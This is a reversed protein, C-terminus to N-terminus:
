SSEIKDPLKHSPSCHHGKKLHQLSEFNRILHDAEDCEGNKVLEYYKETMDKKKEKWSITKGTKKDVINCTLHGDSTYLLQRNWGQTEVSQYTPCETLHIKKRISHIAKDCKSIDSKTGCVGGSHKNEIKTKLDNIETQNLKSDLQSKSCVVINKSKGDHRLDIESCYRFPHKDKNESTIRMWQDKHKPCSTTDDNTNQTFYHKLLYPADSIHPQFLIVNDDKKYHAGDTLDNNFVNILIRNDKDKMPNRCEITDDDDESIHVGGQCLKNKFQKNEDYHGGVVLSAQFDKHCNWCTTALNLMAHDSIWKPFTNCSWEVENSSM